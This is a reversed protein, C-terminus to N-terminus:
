HARQITTILEQGLLKAKWRRMGPVDSLEELTRPAARAIELVVTNALLTGRPLGLEEAKRNRVTKLTDALTLIPPSPRGPGRRRPKPYPQLESEDLHAVAKIRSLLDRGEETALKTPFGKVNTLDSVSRPRAALAEVLPKDGIVRFLARDRDQAIEDRWALAKRLEALQRLSLHRAGKIRVVPDELLEPETVAGSASELALCEEHVWELRGAEALEGKLVDTLRALYRTDNAAYNLMADSLPREAWDARQYKKSLKLGFRSELLSALGLGEEGLLQAAIQTDFLGTVRIGLDRRLLRLDFDASHMMVSVEPNELANRILEAPDFGLPDIVYTGRETTLQLLCLRDSYRHFGAAECDLGIHRASSLDTKLLESKQLSQIHILTM